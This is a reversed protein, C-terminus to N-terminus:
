VGEEEGEEKQGFGMDRFTVVSELIEDIETMKKFVNEGRTSSGQKKLMWAKIEEIIRRAYEIAPGVIKERADPNYHWSKRLITLSEQWADFFNKWDITKDMLKYDLVFLQHNTIDEKPYRLGQLCLEHHMNYWGAGMAEADDKFHLAQEHFRKSIIKSAVTKSVQEYALALNLFQPAIKDIYKPTNKNAAYIDGEFDDALNMNNELLLFGEIKPTLDETRLTKLFEPFKSGIDFYLDYQMDFYIGMKEMPKRFAYYTSERLLQESKGERPLRGDENSRNLKRFGTYASVWKKFTERDEPTFQEHKEPYNGEGM